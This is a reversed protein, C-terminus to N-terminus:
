LKFLTKANKTTAEVLESLDLGKAEAIVRATETLFAPENQLGRKSQPALYPADTEILLNSLPTIRAAELLEASKKFTAIGSLSLYWGRKIVGEAEKLTGTFCHLVGPANPYDSDIIEFFDAFAERCHIIIPLKTELALNLYRRLFKKQTDPDSHNYHYDLGTEGIAVLDKTHLVVQPFFSEGERDVDHPTTAASNRVWPYRKSLQLGRQLTTEDTCINIITSVHADFARQLLADVHPYLADSTLHAHSDTYM